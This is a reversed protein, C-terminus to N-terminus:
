PGGGPPASPAAAAAEGSGAGAAAGTGEGAAASGTTTVPAPRPRGPTSGINSSALMSRMRDPSCSMALRGPETVSRIARIRMVRRTLSELPPPLKWTM